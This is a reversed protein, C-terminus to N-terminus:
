KDEDLPYLIIDIPFASGAAPSFAIDIGKGSGDTRALVTYGQYDMMIGSPPAQVISGDILFPGRFVGGRPLMLVAMRPPADIHIRYEVGYNGLNLADTQHVFDRGTVFTDSTGDGIAFSSPKTLGKADITWEIDSRDFTGRVNYRYPLHPYLPLEEFGDEPEMAVFSFYVDGDTEVDYIVNMGQGPYFNPMMRYYVSEYPRLTLSELPKEPREQLFEITAENGILNAYISPFVEGKRTTRITVNRDPHPNRAVIAMKLKRDTGNVHDAYLRAKGNVKEQYLYGIETFTEPSDSVILPREMPRREDKALQPIGRLYRRLVAEEEKVYTGVPAHYVYYEFPDLYTESSVEVNLSFPESVNGRSDTVSLSVKYLGPTFIAEANGIWNASVIADGDPDYSLDTYRIPEGLRYVPKDVAFKAVPLVNPLTDNHFQGAEPSKIYRAELRNLKEDLRLRVDAMAELWSSSIYLRDGAMLADKSWPRAAGNVAVTRDALRFAAYGTPTTLQAEGREADYRLPFGFLRPLEAAPWYTMEERRLVPASLVTEKGNVYAMTRDFYVFLQVQEPAATAVPMAACWIAAAAAAMLLRLTYRMRKM